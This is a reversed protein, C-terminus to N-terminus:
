LEIMELCDYHMMDERLCKFQEHKFSMHHHGFRWLPKAGSPFANWVRDLFLGTSSPYAFRGHLMRCIHQPCDHSVVLRIDGRYEQIVDFIESQKEESIEENHYWRYPFREGIQRLRLDAQVRAEKDSPLSQAGGIYLIGNDDIYGDPVYKWSGYKTETPYAAELPLSEHDEHNGRIFKSEGSALNPMEIPLDDVLPYYGFDGVQIIEDPQHGTREIWRSLGANMAAFNGHVDGVLLIKKSM